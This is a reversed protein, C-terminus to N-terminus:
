ARQGFFQCILIDGAALTIPTTHTFNVLATRPDAPESRLIVEDKTAANLEARLGQFTANASVDRISGFWVAYRPIALAVPLSVIYPAAGPTGIWSSGVVVQFWGDVHGAIDRYEGTCVTNSVNPSSSGSLVPTYPKYPFDDASLLTDGDKNHVEAATGSTGYDSVTPDAAGSFNANSIAFSPPTAGSSSQLKMDGLSSPPTAGKKLYLRAQNPPTAGSQPVSPATVTLRHRKKMTITFYPGRTTEDTTGSNYWTNAGYWTEDTSTTWRNGSGAEYTRLVGSNDMSRFNTGDWHLGIAEASAPWQETAQQTGSTNMITFAAAINQRVFIYRSAALDFSGYALGVLDYPYTFSSTAGTGGATLTGGANYTYRRVRVKDDSAQSQGILIEATASDWAIAPRRSGDAHVWVSPSGVPALALSFRQVRWEILSPSSLLYMVYLDTGNYVVGGVPSLPVGSPSHILASDEVVGNAAWRQITIDGGAWRLTYWKGSGDKALGLRQSWGVSGFQLSTLSIVASPPNKPPTVGASLNLVSGEGIENDTGLIAGDHVTLHDVEADGRFTKTGGPVFIIDPEGDSDYWVTGEASNEWRVTGPVVDGNDDYDAIYQKGAIGIDATQKGSDIQSAQVRGAYVVNVSIDPTDAQRPTGSAEASAPGVGDADFPEVVAFYEQYLLPAGDLRSFVLHSGYGTGVLEDSTTAGTVDRVYVNYGLLDANAPPTWSVRLAGVGFPEVVVDTPADAPPLGDTLAEPPVPTAPDITAADLQPLKGPVDVVHWESRRLEMEVVERDDFGRVGTPLLPILHQPVTATVPEEGAGVEVIATTEYTEPYLYVEEGVAHAAAFDASVTVVGAEDDIDLIKRVEDGVMVRPAGDIDLFDACDTLTVFDDGITVAVALEDGYRRTVVNVVRGTEM